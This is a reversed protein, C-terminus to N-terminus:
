FQTKKNLFRLKLVFFTKLIEIKEGKINTIM